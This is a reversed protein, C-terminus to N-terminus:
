SFLRDNFTWSWREVGQSDYNELHMELNDTLDQTFGFLTYLDPIAHSSDQQMSATDLTEPTQTAVLQAAAAVPLESSRRENRATISQNMYGLVQQLFSYARQAFTHNNSMAKIMHLAMDVKALTAKDDSYAPDVVHSVLILM